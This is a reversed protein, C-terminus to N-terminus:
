GAPLSALSASRSPWCTLRLEKTKTTAFKGMLCLELLTQSHRCVRREDPALLHACKNALLALFDNAPILAALDWKLAALVLLEGELIEERKLELPLETKSFQILTQVSLRPTQRLKTALLLSCAAFLYHQRRELEEAAASAGLEECQWWEGSGCEPEGAARGAEAEAAEEAAEKEAAEAAAAAAVALKRAPRELRPQLLLFKDLIMSALPFIEEQCLQRECLNLLWSLLSHREAQKLRRAAGKRAEEAQRALEARERLILNVLMEEDELYVPDPSQKTTNPSGSQQLQSGPSQNQQQQQEEEQAAAAAAAAPPPAAPRRALERGLEGLEPPLLRAGCHLLAFRLLLRQEAPRALEVSQPRRNARAALWLGPELGALQARGVLANLRGLEVKAALPRRRAADPPLHLLPGRPLRAVPPEGCAAGAPRRWVGGLKGGDRKLKWKRKWKWKWKWKWKDSCVQSKRVVRGDLVQRPRRQKSPRRRLRKSSVLQQQQWDAGKAKLPGAALKPQARSSVM